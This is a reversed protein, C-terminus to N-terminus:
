GSLGLNHPLSDIIPRFLFRFRVLNNTQGEKEPTSNAYLLGFHQTNSTNLSSYEDNLFISVYKVYRNIESINYIKSLVDSQGAFTVSIESIDKDMKVSEKLLVRLLQSIQLQKEAHGHHSLFLDVGDLQHLNIIDVLSRSFKQSKEISQSSNNYSGINPWKAKM